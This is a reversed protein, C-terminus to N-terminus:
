DMSKYQDCALCQAAHSRVKGSDLRVGSRVGAIKEAVDGLCVWVFGGGSKGLCIKQFREMGARWASKLTTASSDRRVEKQTRRIGDRDCLM